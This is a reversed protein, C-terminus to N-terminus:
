RRRAPLHRNLLNERTDDIRILALDVLVVPQNSYALSPVAFVLRNFRWAAFFALILLTHQCNQFGM